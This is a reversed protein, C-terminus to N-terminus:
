WLANRLGRGHIRNEGDLLSLLRGVGRNQLSTPRTLLEDQDEELHHDQHQGERYVLARV